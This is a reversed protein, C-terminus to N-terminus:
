SFILSPMILHSNLGPAWRSSFASELRNFTLRVGMRDARLRNSLTEFSFELAGKFIEKDAKFTVTTGTTKAKGIITLKSATKGREYEQHYINADRKIEVELM